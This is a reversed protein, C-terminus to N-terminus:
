WAAFVIFLGILRAGGSFDRVLDRLRHESAAESMRTFYATAISVTIISHPLVFILYANQFAAVSASAGSAIGLVITEVLGSFQMILLMGFTWGALRGAKSLGTGRWR